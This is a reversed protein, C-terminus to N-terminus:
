IFSQGHKNLDAILVFKILMNTHDKKCCIQLDIIQSESILLIARSDLSM